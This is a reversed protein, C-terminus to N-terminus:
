CGEALDLISEHARVRQGYQQAHDKDNTIQNQFLSESKQAYLPHFISNIKCGSVRSVKKGNSPMKTKNNIGLSLLFARRQVVSTVVNIVNTMESQTSVINSAEFGLRCITALYLQIVTAPQFM